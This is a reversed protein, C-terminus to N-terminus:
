STQLAKSDSQQPAHTSNGANCITNATVIASMIAQVTQALIELM